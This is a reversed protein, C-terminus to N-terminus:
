EDPERIVAPENEDSEAEGDEDEEEDYMVFESEPLTWAGPKRQNKLLDVVM